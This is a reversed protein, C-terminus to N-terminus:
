KANRRQGFFPEIGVLLARADPESPRGFGFRLPMTPAFTHGSCSHEPWVKSGHFVPVRQPCMNM